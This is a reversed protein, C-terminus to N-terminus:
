GAATKMFALACCGSERRPTLPAQSHLLKKCSIQHFERSFKKRSKKPKKRKVEDAVLQMFKWYM